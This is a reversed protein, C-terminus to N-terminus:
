FRGQRGLGIEASLPTFSPGLIYLSSFRVARWHGPFAKGAVRFCRRLLVCLCLGQVSNGDGRPRFTVVLQCNSLLIGYRLARLLLHVCPQHGRPAGPLSATLSTDHILSSGSVHSRSSLLTPPPCSAPATPLISLSGSSAQPSRLSPAHHISGILSM